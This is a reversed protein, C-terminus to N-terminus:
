RGNPLESVAWYQNIVRITEVFKKYDAPKVMYGTVSLEFSEIVDKENKSTTLVVVPIKRLVKDAKIIELFEIGNMRPMNLDLLIVSPEENSQNRLYKLAEEGNVSHVVENTIDLDRLARKVTMVDISDDEILLIPKSNRM